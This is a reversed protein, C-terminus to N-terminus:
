PEAAARSAPARNGPRRRDDRRPAEALRDAYAARAEPSMAAIREVLLRRALHQHEAQRDRQGAFVAEVALPDFPQARLAELLAARDARRAAHLGALDPGQARWAARLAARDVDSLARTYPGLGIDVRVPRLAAGDGRGWLAGAVVGAVLLNLALSVFLAVALLRRPRPATAAPAAEPGSPEPRTPPRPAM